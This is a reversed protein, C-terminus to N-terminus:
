EGVPRNLRERFLFEAIPALIVRLNFVPKRYTNQRPTAAPRQAARAASRYGRHTGQLGKQPPGRSNQTM